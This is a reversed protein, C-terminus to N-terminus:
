NSNVYKILCLINYMSRKQLIKFQAIRINLIIQELSKEKNTIMHQMCKHNLEVFNVTCHYIIVRSVRAHIM